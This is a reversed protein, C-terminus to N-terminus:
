TGPKPGRPPHDTAVHILTQRSRSTSRSPAARLAARAIRPWARGVDLLFIEVDWVMPVALHAERRARAHRPPIFRNERALARFPVRWSDYVTVDYDGTARARLQLRLEM